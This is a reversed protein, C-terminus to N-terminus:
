PLTGLVRILQLRARLADLEAQVFAVQAQEHALQGELVELGTAGGTEFQASLARVVDQASRSEASTSVIAADSVRIARLAARVDSIVRREVVRNAAEAEYIAANDAQLQAYRMGGDYLLWSLQVTMQFQVGDPNAFTERGLSMNGSLEIRPLFSLWTALKLRKASRLTLAQSELDRRAALAEAQAKAEEPAPAELLAPRVLAEECPPNRGLLVCLVDRSAHVTAMAVLEERQARHLAAKARSVDVSLGVGSGRRAVAADMQAVRAEVASQSVRHMAEAALVSLYSDAVRFRLETRADDLSARAANERDYAAMLGPIARGDFVTMRVGLMGTTNDRPVIVGAGGRVEEDNLTYSAQGSLNPIMAAIAQRKAAQARALTARVSALDDSQAVAIQVAQKLTLAPRESSTASEVGQSNPPPEVAHAGFGGFLILCCVTPAYLVTAWPRVQQPRASLSGWLM